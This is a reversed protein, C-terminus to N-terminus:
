SKVLGDGNNMQKPNKIVEVGGGGARFPTTPYMLLGSKADRAGTVEVSRLKQKTIPASHHM